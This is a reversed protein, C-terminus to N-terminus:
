VGTILRGKKISPVFDIGTIQNTAIALEPSAAKAMPVNDNRVVPTYKM